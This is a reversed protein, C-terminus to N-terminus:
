GFGRSGFASATRPGSTLPSGSWTSAIRSPFKEAAFLNALKALLLNVGDIVFVHAQKRLKHGLPALDDGPPQGAHARRMLPPKRRGDLLRSIDSQQRKRRFVLPSDKM